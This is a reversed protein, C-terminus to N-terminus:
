AVVSADASEAPAGEPIPEATEEPSLLLQTSGKDVTNCANPEVHPNVIRV